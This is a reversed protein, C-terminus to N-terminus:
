IYTTKIQEFHNTHMPVQPCHFLLFVPAWHAGAKSVIVLLVCVVTKRQRAAGARRNLGLKQVSSSTYLHETPKRQTINVEPEAKNQNPQIVAMPVHKNIAQPEIM